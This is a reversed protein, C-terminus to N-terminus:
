EDYKREIMRLNYEWNEDNLARLCKLCNNFSRNNPNNDSYKQMRDLICFAGPWNLDQLWMLLETVYPFLEDDTKESLIKACNDWLMKVIIKM